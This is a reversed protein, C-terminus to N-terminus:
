VGGEANKEGDADRAIAFPESYGLLLALLDGFLQLAFLGFGIPIASYPIWKPPDWPTNTTEGWDWADYWLVWGYGAVLGAFIISATLVLLALAKRAGHSLALPIIDVNVHGNHKQVYPLGILTAAVALFTILETQWVTSGNLVYRIFIMQCTIAIAAAFMAAAIWGCVESVARIARLFLPARAADFAAAESTHLSAGSM